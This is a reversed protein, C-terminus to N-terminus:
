GTKKNLFIHSLWCRLLLFLKESNIIRFRKYLLHAADAKQIRQFLKRYYTYALYVGLRVERKLRLIGLWAEDFDKQIEKEIRKKKYNDFDDPVIDPFYSRGRVRFDSRIDRLFNVKQFAEGLKKATKKLEEYSADDDKYYVRLCMLGIVEASGYVYKSFQKRNYDNRYLDMEMSEFFADILERDIHNEHVAWQFSHLVPNTSIKNDIAKYTDQRFEQMLEKQDYGYMTDVIEDAYRVFAYLAYIPNRYTRKLLRIGMSFSTSYNRTTIRSCNLANKLYLEM